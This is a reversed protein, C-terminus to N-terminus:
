RQMLAGIGVYEGMRRGVNELLGGLTVAMM